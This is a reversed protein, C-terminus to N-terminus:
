DVPHKRRCLIVSREIINQLERINGPWPYAPLAGDCKQRYHLNTQRGEGRLRKVFIDVLMPIDEKRQRLAPV